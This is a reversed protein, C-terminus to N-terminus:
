GFSGLLSGIDKQKGERVKRKKTPRSQNDHELSQSKTFGDMEFLVQRDPLRLYYRIDQDYKKSRSLPDGRYSLYLSTNGAKARSPLQSMRRSMDFINVLASIHVRQDETWIAKEKPPLDVHRWQDQTGDANLKEARHCGSISLCVLHLAPFGSLGRLIDHTSPGVDCLILVRLGEFARKERVARGWNRIDLDTLEVSHHAREQEIAIASLTHIDTLAMLDRFGIHLGRICLFTLCSSDLKTSFKALPHLEDPRRHATEAVYFSQNRHIQDPFAQRFM